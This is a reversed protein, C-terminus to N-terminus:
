RRELWALPDLADAGRRLELYLRGGKPGGGARALAEGRRVASGKAKEMAGLGGYVSFFGSGHDLIIVQGYSRFPGAFIVTGPAVARVPAAAETDLLLGQHVSWTGLEPDRERGFGRAVSGPAPWPLSHRPLDLTATPQGPAKRYKATRAARELLSTLAKASEELERAKRAAAAVREQTRALEAKKEEYERRREERERDARSRSEALEGAKRRTEAEAQETKDRFGRLGRVHRAKELLAARRFEESWLARSDWADARSASAAAHRAAEASLAATWFGTVKKAAEVRNKLDARRWEAQKLRAQLEELRRRSQADKSELRSVDGGLEREEARLEELEALTRQLEKQVRGLERRQAAGQGAAPAAAALLLLLSLGRRAM